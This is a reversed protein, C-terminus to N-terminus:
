RAKAGSNSSDSGNRGSLLEIARMLQSDGSAKLEAATMNREEEPLLIDAQPPLPVTENPTIGKHWFSAGSPTLWEQVALLLASGDSLGFEQLVTGTGFTTEGVLSGRHADKLAGAIIEAGSASGGNVLTVIPLDTALGGKIVPVPKTQGQANKALLVNGSALFQSAVEVAADLIGGPNNRLDLIIGDTKSKRIEVLASHLDKVTAEEFNSVRLHVLATEPLRMWNVSRLKLDARAVSIERERGTRPDVITLKVMTGPPGTVRAAVEHLPLGTMDHGDVKLIVDGPRIGARLAPSDDLPAVVTIRDAKMQIEVGIGQMRGHQAEQLRKVMNPSLFTSHGVDGLSDVMGAIAGYSLRKGKLAASDVYYRQIVKWAEAVLRFPAVDNSPGRGALSIWEFTRGTSFGLVLGFALVLSPRPWRLLGPQIGRITM